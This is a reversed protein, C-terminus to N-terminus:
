KDIHIMNKKDLITIPTAKNLIIEYDYDKNKLKRINIKKNVSKTKNTPEIKKLYMNFYNGSLYSIKFSITKNKPLYSILAKCKKDNLRFSQKKAHLNGTLALIKCDKNKKSFNMIDRAM